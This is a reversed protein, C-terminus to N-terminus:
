LTKQLCFLMGSPQSTVPGDLNYRWCWCGGAPNYRWCWWGGAPNQSFWNYFDELLVGVEVQM